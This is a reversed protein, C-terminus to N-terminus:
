AAVGSLEEVFLGKKRADAVARDVSRKALGTMESIDTTSYGRGRLTIAILELERPSLRPRAYHAPRNMVISLALPDIMGDSMIGTPGNERHKPSPHGTPEHNPDEIDDDDWALPPVCKIRYGISKGLEDDAKGYSGEPEQNWLKNYVKEIADRRSTSLTWDPHAILATLACVPANLHSAISALSWGMYALSGVRRVAGVSAMKRGAGSQLWMRGHDDCGKVRYGACIHLDKM